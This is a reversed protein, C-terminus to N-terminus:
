SSPEYCVPLVNVIEKLRERSLNDELAGQLKEFVIDLDQTDFNSRDSTSGM